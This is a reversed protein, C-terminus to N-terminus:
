VDYGEKRFLGYSTLSSGERGPVHRHRHIRRYLERHHDPLGRETQQENRQAGVRSGRHNRGRRQHDSGSWQKSNTIKTGAYIGVGVILVFTIVWTAVLM